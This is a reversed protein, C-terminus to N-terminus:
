SQLLFSTRIYTWLPLTHIVTLTVHPISGLGTLQLIDAFVVLMGVSLLGYSSQLSPASSLRKQQRREVVGPLRACCKKAGNRRERPASDM